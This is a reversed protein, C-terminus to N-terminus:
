PIKALMPPSPPPPTKEIGLVKTFKPIGFEGIELFLHLFLSLITLKKNLVLPGLICFSGNQQFREKEM